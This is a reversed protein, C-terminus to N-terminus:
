VWDPADAGAAELAEARVADLDGRRMADLWGVLLALESNRGDRM